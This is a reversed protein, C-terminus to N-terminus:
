PAPLPAKLGHAPSALNPRQLSISNIKRQVLSTNGKVSPKNIPSRMQIEVAEARLQECRKKTKEYLLKTVEDVPKLSNWESDDYKGGKDWFLIKEIEEGTKIWSQILDINDLNVNEALSHREAPSLHPMLAKHQPTMKEMLSLEHATFKDM